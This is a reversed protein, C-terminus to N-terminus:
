FELRKQQKKPRSHHPGAEQYFQQCEGERGRIIRQGNLPGFTATIITWPGGHETDDRYIVVWDHTANAQHAHATNSFLATYHRDGRETHLIPLWAQGTPNFNRPAVKPLHGQRALRRYQEDIDLLESVPISRDVAHEAPETTPPRSPLFRFRGALTERVAQLRKKGMGAVTALRGDQAAAALEPLTEIGLDQHIRAALKPGIDAVTALLREPAHEGRLRDLLPLRGDHILHEISNALSAGIGPLSQLGSRGETALIDQLRRGCGRITKAAERYARIRYPNAGQDELLDAVEVFAEAVRENEPLPMAEDAHNDQASTM